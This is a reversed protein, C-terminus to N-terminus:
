GIIRPRGPFPPRNSNGATELLAQPGSLSERLRVLDRFLDRQHRTPFLPPRGGPGSFQSGDFTEADDPEHAPGGGGPGSYQSGGFPEAQDPERRSADGRPTGLAAEVVDEVIDEVIEQVAEPEVSAKGDVPGEQGADSTM